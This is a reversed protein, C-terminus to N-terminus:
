ILEVPDRAAAAAVKDTAGTGAGGRSVAEVGGGGRGERSAGGHEFLEGKPEFPVAAVFGFGDALQDHPHEDKHGEHNGVRVSRIKGPRDVMARVRLPKPALGPIGRGPVGHIRKLLVEGSAQRLPPVTIQKWSPM